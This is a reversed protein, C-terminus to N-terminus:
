SSSKTLIEEDKAYAAYAEVEKKRDAAKERKHCTKLCLGCHICEKEDIVPYYFGETDQEFTICNVPCINKCARCGTCDAKPVQKVTM